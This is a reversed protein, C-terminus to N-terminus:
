RPPSRTAPRSARSPRLWPDRKRSMSTPVLESIMRESLRPTVAVEQAAPGAMSPMFREQPMVAAGPATSSTRRSASAWTEVMSSRGARPRHPEPMM